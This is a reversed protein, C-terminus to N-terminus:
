MGWCVKWDAKREWTGADKRGIGDFDAGWVADKVKPTTLWGADGADGQAMKALESKKTWPIRRALLKDDDKLNKWWNGIDIAWTEGLDDSMIYIQPVAHM